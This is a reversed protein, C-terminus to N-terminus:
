HAVAYLMCLASYAVAQGDTRGDCQHIVCFVTSSLILFNEGYPLGMGRTKACYTEDLFELPNGSRPTM